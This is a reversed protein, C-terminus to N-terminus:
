KKRRGAGRKASDVHEIEGSAVALGYRHLAYADVKNGKTDDPFEIKWKKLAALAMAVKDGNGKGTTFKKLTSPQVVIIRSVEAAEAADDITCSLYGRDHLNTAQANAAFIPGEVIWWVARTGGTEISRDRTFQCMRVFLKECRARLTWDAPTSLVDHTIGDSMAFGTFSPDIGIIVPTV